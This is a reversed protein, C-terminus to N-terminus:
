LLYRGLIPNTTEFSWALNQEIEKRWSEGGRRKERRREKRMKGTEKEVESRGEERRRERAGKM